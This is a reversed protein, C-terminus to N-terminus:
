KERNDVPPYINTKVKVMASFHRMRKLPLMNNKEDVVEPGRWGKFHTDHGMSSYRLKLLFVVHASDPGQFWGGM